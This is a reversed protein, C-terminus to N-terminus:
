QETPLLRAIEAFWNEVVIIQVAGTAEEASKIMLFRGDVPSVDYNPGGQVLVYEDDFLAEPNGAIFGSSTDIEVRMVSQGDRYFLESGDHAWVPQTGGDTSVQWRGANIDPYPRVYIQEAGSENSVYALWQGDPSVAPYSEEFPTSLLPAVVGDGNLLVVGIDDGRGSGGEAGYVFLGSADPLFSRTFAQGPSDALQEVAGTGDANRSLVISASGVGAVPTSTYAITRGDPAWVPSEDQGPDFTLRTLTQRALNWTWTDLEQDRIDLAVTSGNPSIKANTYARV